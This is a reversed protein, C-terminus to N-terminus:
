AKIKITSNLYEIMNDALNSFELQEEVIQRNILRAKNLLSPNKLAELIRDALVEHNGLPVLYGNQGDEIWDQNAPIDSLIPFCGCAMAEFLSVPAGDSFPVSVFVHSKKLIDLLVPLSADGILKARAELGYDDISKQIDEYEPGTSSIIVDFDECKEYVIPLSNIFQQVNYLPDLKRTSVIQFNGNKDTTESYNFIKTDIGIPNMFIHEQPVGRENLREAIAKSVSVFRDTRRIIFRTILRYLFSKKMELLVDSGLAMIVHPHYNCLAGLAGPGILYISLLIEPKIKRILKRTAIASWIYKLKRSRLVSPTKVQHYRIEKIEAIDFGIVDIRHGKAAIYKLIKKVHISEINTIICLHM